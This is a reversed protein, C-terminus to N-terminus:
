LCFKKGKLGKTPTYVYPTQGPLIQTRLRKREVTGNRIDVLLYSFFKQTADEFMEQFFTRRTPYLQWGLRIIQSMDPRNKFLILYQSNLSFVKIEKGIHFLNQPIFIM